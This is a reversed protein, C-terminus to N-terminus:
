KSREGAVEPRGRHVSMKLAPRRTEFTGSGSMPEDAHAALPWAAAVGSLLTIFERGDLRM